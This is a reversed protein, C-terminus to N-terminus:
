VPNMLKSRPSCSLKWTHEENDWAYILFFDLYTSCFFGKEIGRIQLKWLLNKDV